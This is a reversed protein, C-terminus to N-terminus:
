ARTPRRPRRPELTREERQRGAADELKALLSGPMSAGPRTAAHLQRAINPPTASM